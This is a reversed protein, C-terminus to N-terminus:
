PDPSIKVPIIKDYNRHMIYIITFSCIFATLYLFPYWNNPMLDMFGYDPPLGPFLVTILFSVGNNLSHIFIVIWLSNTRWYLWGMLLGMLFAPIAQWPNLHMIGFMFASWLIAKVPTSHYLLGRLIIGRCFLEELLPAFIVIALFSSFPYERIQAIFEKFYQPMEIWITIPETIINFSFVLPIILAISLPAGINGFNPSNVPIYGTNETYGMGERKKAKRVSFLVAFLPPIFVLPYSLIEILGDNNGLLIKLIFVIVGSLIGGGVVLFILLIWSASLDPLYRSFKNFM